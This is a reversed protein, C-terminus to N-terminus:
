PVRSWYSQMAAQYIERLPVGTREHAARCSEFEPSVQLVHGQLDMGLKVEVEGHQTPVPEIRRALKLRRMESLRLGFASTERFILAAIKEVVAADCLATFLFGPRGKKMLVPTLFADLAGARLAEDILTGVIEPSLDDLNTEIQTVTDTAYREM